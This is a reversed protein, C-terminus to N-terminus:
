EVALKPNDVYSQRAIAWHIIYPCITPSVIVELVIISATNFLYIYIILSKLGM